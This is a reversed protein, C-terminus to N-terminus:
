LALVRHNDVVLGDPFQDDGVVAVAQYWEVLVSIRVTNEETRQETRQGSASEQRRAEIRRRDARHQTM